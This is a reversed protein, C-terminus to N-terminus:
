QNKIEFAQHRLPRLPAILANNPLFAQGSRTMKEFIRAPVGKQSYGKTNGALQKASHRQTTQRWGTTVATPFSM